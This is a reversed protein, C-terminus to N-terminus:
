PVRGLLDPALLLAHLQQASRFLCTLSGTRVALSVPDQGPPRRHLALFSTESKRLQGLALKLIVSVRIRLLGSLEWVCGVVQSVIFQMILLIISATHSQVLPESPRM